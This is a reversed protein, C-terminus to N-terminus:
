AISMRIGNKETREKTWGDKVTITALGVMKCGLSDLEHLVRMLATSEDTTVFETIGAAKMTKVFDEASDTEWPLDQVMFESAEYYNTDEYARFAKGAGNSMPFPFEAAERENWTKVADWDEKNILEQKEAKRIDRAAQWAQGEARMNEFYANTM